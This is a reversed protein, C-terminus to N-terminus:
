QKSSMIFQNMQYEAVTAGLTVLRERLNSMQAMHAVFDLRFRASQLKKFAISIFISKTMSKQEGDFYALLHKWMETRTGLGYGRPALDAALSSLIRRKLKIQLKNYRRRESDTQLTSRDIEGRAITDLEEDELAAIMLHKNFGWDEGNWQKPLGIKESIEIRPRSSSGLDQMIPSMVRNSNYCLLKVSGETFKETKTEQRGGIRNGVSRALPM